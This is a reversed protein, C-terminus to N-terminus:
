WKVELVVQGEHSQGGVVRNGYPPHLGGIWGGEYPPHLGGIWVGPAFRRLFSDM